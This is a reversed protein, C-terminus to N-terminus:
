LVGCKPTMTLNQSKQSNIIYVATKAVEIPSIMKSHDFDGPINAWIDTDVAGASITSIFINDDILTPAMAKSFALVASKSACYSTIGPFYTSDAVSSINVIHGGSKKMYPIVTQTFFVVSKLNTDIVNNWQPLETDIISLASIVGASNILYDIRGFEKYVESVFSQIQTLVRVDVSKHFMRIDSNIDKIKQVFLEGNEKSLSCTAINFGLSALEESIAKGIGRKAGTIIAVKM